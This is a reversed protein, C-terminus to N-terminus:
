TRFISHFVCTSGAAVTRINNVVVVIFDFRSYVFVPKSFGELIKLVRARWTRPASADCTIIIYQQSSSALPDIFRSLSFRCRRLGDFVVHTYTIHIINHALAVTGTTGFCVCASTIYTYLSLLSLLLHPPPSWFRVGSVPRACMCVRGDCDNWIEGWRGEVLAYAVVVCGAIVRWPFWRRRVFL